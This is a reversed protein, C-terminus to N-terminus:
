KRGFSSSYEGMFGDIPFVKRYAVATAAMILPLVLYIGVCLMLYGALTLLLAVGMMGTIGGLNQWSARSSLRIAQMASLNREAILPYAFILLSHVAVMIIGLVLEIGILLAIFLILEDQSMREGALAMAIVPLYIGLLMLFFPGVIIFTLVLSPLFKDFGKFLLNFDTKGRDIKALLALYIGCMMPGILVIPLLSAIVMGLLTVAFITWYEDKILQWSERFLEVPRIVGVRFEQELNM